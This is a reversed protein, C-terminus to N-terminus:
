TAGLWATTQITRCRNCQYWNFSANQLYGSCGALGGKSRLLHCESREGEVHRLRHCGGAVECHLRSGLCQIDGARQAGTQLATAATISSNIWDLACGDSAKCCGESRSCKVTQKWDQDVPDSSAQRSSKPHAM